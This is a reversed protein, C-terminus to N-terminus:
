KNGENNNNDKVQNDDSKRNELVEKQTNNETNKSEDLDSIHMRKERPFKIEVPEGKGINDKTLNQALKSNAVFEGVPKLVDEALSKGMEVRPTSSTKEEVKNELTKGMEDMKIVEQKKNEHINDMRSQTNQINAKNGSINGMVTGRIDGITKGDVPVQNYTTKYKDLNLPEKTSKADNAETVQAVSDGNNNEMATQQPNNDSQEEKVSPAESVPTNLFEVKDKTEYTDSLNKAEKGYADEIKDKQEQNDQKLADFSDGIHGKNALFGDENTNLPQAIQTGSAEQEKMFSGIEKSLLEPNSMMINSWKEAGYKEIRSNTFQENMSQNINASNEQMTRKQEQLSKVQEVSKRHEHSLSEGTSFDSRMGDMVSQSHADGTNFTASEGTKQVQNFAETFKKDKVIDLADSYAEGLNATKSEDIGYVVGIKTFPITVGWSAGQFLKLSDNVDLGHNEAHKEAVGRVYNFSESEDKDLSSMWSQYGSSNQSFNSDFGLTKSLGKSTSEIANKAHTESQSQTNTIGTDLSEGRRGTYNIDFLGGTKNMAPTVDITEKGGLYKNVFSGDPNSFTKMGSMWTYNDDHKHASLNDYSHNGISTNGLNYNGLATQESVGVAASQPVYMISSSLNGVGSVMGRMAYMAIMPILMIMYGAIMSIDENIKMIQNQTAYTLVGIGSAESYGYTSAISYMLAYLPAWMQIYLFSLAYNKLVETSLPTMILILILPFIGYLICEIAVRILPIFRSAFSALTKFSSEIKARTAVKGYADAFDGLGNLMINQTILEQADKSANLYMDYSSQLANSFYTTDSASSMMNPSFYNIFKSAYAPLMVNQVENDIGNKLANAADNCSIYGDAEAGTGYKSDVKILRAKSSKEAILSLMDESSKLESITYGNKRAHGMQLDPIVCQYFVKSMLERLNSDGIRLHSVDEVLKSGFMIGTKQYDENMFVASYASEFQRTVYDGIQSTVSGLFALGWPVNNVVKEAPPIGYANPMRDHIMVNVKNEVFVTFVLIASIYYKMLSKFDPVFAARALLAILAGVFAIKIIGLFDDGTVINIAHFTKELYEGGGITYIEYDIKSM